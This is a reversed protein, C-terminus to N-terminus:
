PARASRVYSIPNLSRGDRLVEFHLHPGTARGTSGMLAILDGKGIREGVGVLNEKNHAYRTVLGRGHTVEILNGYGRRDGAFTVVGDAVARVEMGERGGFDIGSHFARTGTIPDTRSGYASSIWGGEVPPGAPEARAEVERVLLLNELADLQRSRDEIRARVALLGEIADWDDTEAGPDAYMPGGMAPPATFDFEGDELGALRTLRGGLADLRVLRASLAGIQGTMADITDDVGRELAHLEAAQRDVMAQLAAVEREAQVRYVFSWSLGAALGVAVLSVAALAAVGAAAAPAVTVRRARRRPNTLLLLNM